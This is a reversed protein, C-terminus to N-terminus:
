DQCIAPINASDDGDFYFRFRARPTQERFSGTKDLNFLGVM